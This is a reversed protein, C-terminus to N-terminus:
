PTLNFKDALEPEFTGDVLVFLVRCAKDSRNAWAHNTGRQIVVDGQKLDIEEEDLILTIEGDIIVGYDVSETRHMFAHQSSDAATSASAEGVTAFAEKVEADGGKLQHSADPPFDVFRIRTGNAPPSLSVPGLTPDEGNDIPTPTQRTNWVEHFRIGPVAEFDLSKPVNGSETVISRGQENHGTVVRRVSKMSM